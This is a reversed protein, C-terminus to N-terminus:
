ETAGLGAALFPVRFPVCWIVVSRFGELDLEPPVEYNQSGINGKLPGLDYYDPLEVGVTNEVPDASTLYVHLQPGNQVEFGEFRLVRSGDSLQYLTATGQGEHAVNYFTGQALIAMEGMEDEPMPEDQMIPAASLAANMTATMQANIDLPPATSSPAATPLGEDVTENLFLPSLLFWAAGIVGLGIAGSFLLSGITVKRRQIRM